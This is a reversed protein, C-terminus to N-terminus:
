SAIVIVSVYPVLDLLSVSLCLSINKFDEELM